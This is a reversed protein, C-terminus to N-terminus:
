LLKENCILHKTLHRSVSLVECPLFFFISETNSMLESAQFKNVQMGLDLIRYCLSNDKYNAIQNLVCNVQEGFYDGRSLTRIEEEKGDTKKTM